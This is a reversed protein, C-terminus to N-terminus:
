NDYNIAKLLINGHNLLVVFIIGHNYM